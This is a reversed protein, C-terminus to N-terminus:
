TKEKQKEAKVVPIWKGTASWAQMQASSVAELINEAQVYLAQDGEFEIRWM